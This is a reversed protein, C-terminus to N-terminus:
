PQPAPSRLTSQGVGRIIRDVAEIAHSWPTPPVPKWKSWADWWKCEVINFSAQRNSALSRCRLTGRYPQILNRITINAENLSYWVRTYNNNDEPRLVIPEQGVQESIWVLRTVNSPAHGLCRLNLDGSFQSGVSIPSGDVLHDRSDRFVSLPETFANLFTM